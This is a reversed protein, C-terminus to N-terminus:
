KKGKLQIKTIGLRRLDASYHQKVWNFKFLTDITLTENDFISGDFWTRVVQDGLTDAIKIQLASLDAREQSSPKKNTPIAPLWSAEFGRWGKKLMMEIAGSPSIGAKTAEEEIGKLVRETVPLDKEQRDNLFDAWLKHDMGLPRKVEEKVFNEEFLDPSNIQKLQKSQKKNNNGTQQDNTLRKNTRKNTAKEFDQYIDYNCVSIITAQKNTRKNIMQQNELNKLLTRTSQASIRFGQSIFSITTVLEGRKLNYTVGNVRVQTDKWACNQYIWNWVGAELLDKFVPNFWAARYALCFGENAM